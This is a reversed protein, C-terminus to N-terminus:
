RLSVSTNFNSSLNSAFAKQGIANNM